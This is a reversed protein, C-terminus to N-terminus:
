QKDDGNANIVTLDAFADDAQFDQSYPPTVPDASLTASTGPESTMGNASATVAYSFKTLTEPEQMPDNASTGTIGTAVPTGEPLRTVTYTVASADIFGGHIGATVPQWTIEAGNGTWVATVVPAVPTDHGFYKELEAAPSTGAKNALTVAITYLGSSPLTVQESVEAGFSTEGKKLETGNATVTFSVTGEAPNGEYTLAPVKFSVTGSLSSGTFEAALSAPAAPADWAAKPPAVYMGVIQENNPLQYILTAEATQKNIEYLFSEETNGTAKYYVFFFRGSHPDICGSTIYSRSLGTDGIETMTGTTKDVTFLKGYYDIAYVTGDADVACASWATPVPAIVTRVQSPYDVTGFVSGSGDDNYFCGYVKKSVPDLAVDHAIVGLDTTTYTLQEWTNADYSFLFQEDFGEQGIHTASWYVGDIEVGGGNSTVGYPSLIKMEGGPVTPLACMTLYNSSNQPWLVNGILQPIPKADAEARAHMATAGPLMAAAKPQESFRAHIHSPAKFPSRFPTGSKMPPNAATAALAAAAILTTYIRKM